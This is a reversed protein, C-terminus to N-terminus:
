RSDSKADFMEVNFGVTPVTQFRENYKLKYLLTSKGAGDLGLLLVRAEPLKSGKLGM